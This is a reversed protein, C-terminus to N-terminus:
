LLGKRAVADDLDSKLEDYASGPDSPDIKSPPHLADQFALSVDQYAPTQPRPASDDISQKVLGAFGPYAKVVTPNSYLDQRSPPLGDLKVATLQSKKGAICAAAQFDEDPHSSYAGVGINFGGLPPRSPTGAVVEPYKAFGMVKQIQPANDGASAYAFTYNLMFASTGGEFGLRASDEDSTSIDTSAASSNALKGMVALGEETQKRPLDVTEPGSLIQGGASEIMANAWVTFGEYKDSQVQITGPKGDSILKEGEDIMQDWTTPPKPVLDKRYWLLQTNSNIPAAFLKGKWTATQLPGPLVGKSVAAANAGTWPLIWRATAFEATWDVDMALIDISSDKAALRRVLSVRQQDSATSLLNINITYKGGSAASCQKAATAFSGSPEPFVYWSLAV